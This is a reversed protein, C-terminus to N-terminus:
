KLLKMALNYNEDNMVYYHADQGTLFSLQESNTAAMIISLRPFDTKLAQKVQKPNHGDIKVIHFGFGKLRKELTSPDIPDYAGWGNVSVILILNKIKLDHIIRLAEWISGEACEGDSILCYLKKKRDAIAMGCAIPLGQGLSGTSLDIGIRPDRNPHNEFDILNAEPIYGFKELIVYLASASHGNSLIFKETKKKVEYVADIIDIVSLASGIHSAHANHAVTLLRRRIRKQNPTLKSSM